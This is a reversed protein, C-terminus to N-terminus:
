RCDNDKNSTISYLLSQAPNEGLFHYRTVQCSRPVEQVWRVASVVQFNICVFCTLIFGVRYSETRSSGSKVPMRPVLQGWKLIPKFNNKCKSKESAGGMFVFLGIELWKSHCSQVKLHTGKVSHYWGNRPSLLVGQAWLLKASTLFNWCLNQPNWCRTWSYWKVACCRWRRGANTSSKLLQQAFLQISSVVVCELAM